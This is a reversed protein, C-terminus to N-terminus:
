INQFGSVLNSLANEDEIPFNINDLSRDIAECVEWVYTMVHKYSIEFAFAIDLYIGGALFRLAIAL